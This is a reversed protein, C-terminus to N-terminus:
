KKRHARVQMVIGHVAFITLIIVAVIFSDMISRPVQKANVLIYIDSVFHLAVAVVGLVFARKWQNGVIAFLMKATTMAYPVAVAIVIFFYGYPNVGYKGFTKDVVLTKGIDWVLVLLIWWRELLRRHHESKLWSSVNM